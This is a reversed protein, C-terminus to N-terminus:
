DPHLQPDGQLGSTCPVPGCKFSVEPTVYVDLDGSGGNCNTNEDSIPKGMLGTIKKWIDSDMAAIFNDVAAEDGPRSQSWWFRVPLSGANKYFWLESSITECNIKKPATTLVSAPRPSYSVEQVASDDGTQATGGEPDAWSGKYIPPMLFPMLAKQDEASLTDFVAALDDLVHSDTGPNPSGQYQSPLRSDKFQAYLNYKLATTSDIEGNELAANILDGTPPATNEEPTPM